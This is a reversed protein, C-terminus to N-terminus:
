ECNIQNAKKLLVDKVDAWKPRKITPVIVEASGGLTNIYNVLGNQLSIWLGDAGDFQIKEGGFVQSVFGVFGDAVGTLRDVGRTYIEMSGDANITYGFKRNGSVPHGFSANTADKVTSFTWSTPGFDSCVVTAKDGPINILVFSGLPDNTWKM